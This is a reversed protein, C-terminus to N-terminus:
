NLNCAIRKEIEKYLFLMDNDPLDKGALLLDHCLKFFSERMVGMGQGINDIIKLLIIPEEALDILAKSEQVVQLFEEKSFEEEPSIDLFKKCKIALEVKGYVIALEHCVKFTQRWEPFDNMDM